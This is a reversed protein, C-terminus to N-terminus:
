VTKSKSLPWTPKPASAEAEAEAEAKFDFKSGDEVEDEEDEDGGWPLPVNVAGSTVPVAADVASAVDDDDGAEEAIAVTDPLEADWRTWPMLQDISVTM